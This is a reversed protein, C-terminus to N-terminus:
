PQIAVTVGSQSSATGVTIVVPVSTGRPVGAPIMANVQLVGSPEGPAAGAYSVPANQGAIQVTVPLPPMPSQDKRSSDMSRRGPQNTRRRHRLHERYIGAGSSERDFQRQQESESHSGPGLWEPRLHRSRLRGGPHHRRQLRENSINPQFPPRPTARSGTRFSPRFKGPPLISLPRRSITSSYSTGALTTAVKGFQDVQLNAPISRAWRPGFITVIEGPSVPGSLFSAGNVVSVLAPIAPDGHRHFHHYPRARPRHSSPRAM